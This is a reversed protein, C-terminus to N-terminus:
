PTTIRYAEWRTLSGNEKNENMGKIKGEAVAAVTNIGVIKGNRRFIVQYSNDGVKAVSVRTGAIDGRVPTDGDGIRAEYSTGNPSSSQFSSGSVKYTFAVDNFSSLKSPKWQGSIAHAGAPASGVRNRTVVAKVPLGPRSTDTFEVTSTNGDASVTMTSVRVPRGGKKTTEIVTHANVVKISDHDFYPMNVPHYAGDAAVSYPPKCSKCTFIGNQLLYEDPTAEFRVSNVDLKWSGNIAAAAAPRLSPSSKDGAAAQDKCGGTVVVSLAAVTMLITQRM